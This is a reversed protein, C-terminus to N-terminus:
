VPVGRHDKPFEYDKRLPHGVWDDPLLIRRLDEHGDFEVGILDFTEREHWNATPWVKSVTPVRPNDVPVHVKITMKHRHELSFLHYVVQLEEGLDLGSLLMLSNFHLKESDCLYPALDTMAEPAVKLVLEPGAEDSLREMQDVLIKGSIELDQYIEKSNM